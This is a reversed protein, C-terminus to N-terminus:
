TYLHDEKRIYFIFTDNLFRKLKTIGKRMKNISDISDKFQVRIKMLYKTEEKKYQIVGHNLYLESM